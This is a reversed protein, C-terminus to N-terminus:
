KFTTFFIRYTIADDQDLLSVMSEFYAIHNAPDTRSKYFELHPTKFRQPPCSKMIKKSFTNTPNVNVKEEKIDEKKSM